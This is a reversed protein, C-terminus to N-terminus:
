MTIVCLSSLILLMTSVITRVQAYLPPDPHHDCLPLLTDASLDLYNGNSFLIIIIKALIV